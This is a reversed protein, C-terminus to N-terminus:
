NGLESAEQLAQKDLSKDRYVLHVFARGVASTYTVSVERDGKTFRDTETIETRREDVDVEHVPRGYKEWLAVITKERVQQAREEGDSEFIGMAAIRWIRSSRPTLELYYKSFSPLPVTPKFGYQVSAGMKESSAASRPDFKQGLALGFAGTIPPRSADTDLRRQDDETLMSIKVTYLKEDKASRIVVSNTGKFEVVTGEINTGSKL